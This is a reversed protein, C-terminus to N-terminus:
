SPSFLKDLENATNNSAVDFTDNTNLDLVESQQAKLHNEITRIDDHKDLWQKFDPNAYVKDVDISGDNIGDLLADALAARRESDDEISMLETFKDPTLFEAAFQEAFDEGYKNIMNDTIADLQRQLNSLLILDNTAQQEKKKTLQASNNRNGNNIRLGGINNSDDGRMNAQIMYHQRLEELKHGSPTEGSLNFQEKLNFAM